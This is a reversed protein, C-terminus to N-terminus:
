KKVLGKTKLFALIWKYGKGGNNKRGLILNLCRIIYAM